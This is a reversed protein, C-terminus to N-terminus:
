NNAKSCTSQAANQGSISSPLAVPAAAPVATDTPVPTAVPIRLVDVASPTETPAPAAPSPDVAAGVGLNGTLQLPQDAALAANLADVASANPVVRNPNDPDGVVPYQVFVINASDINKMALALSVMSTPNSLSASTQLNKVAADALQYLAIPNSLVGGHLVQRVMASLFVQQNSIRGLDSGDGVGARTRVFALAVQGKITQNGAPLDLAASPDNIPADLCVTVGGIADSMAIVGDFNILAAYKIDLGTLSEATLVVCSLGGESLTTNFMGKSQASFTGGSPDPCEPIPAMLDRPISIVTASRHDAAIHLVMTVDNSGTGSSGNLQDQTGFEGGQGTRTDTGSLLINAGGELPGVQPLPAVQGDAQLLQTGPKIHSATSVVLVAAIGVSSALMVALSTFLVRVITLAPGSQRGRRHRVSSAGSEIALATRRDIPHTV